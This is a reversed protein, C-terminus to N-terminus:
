AVMLLISTRKASNKTDDRTSAAIVTRAARATHPQGQARGLVLRDCSLDDSPRRRCRFNPATPDGAIGARHDGNEHGVRGPGRDVVRRGLRDKRRAAIVAPDAFMTSTSAAPTGTAATTSSATSAHHRGQSRRRHRQPKGDGANSLKVHAVSFNTAGIPRLQRRPRRRGSPPAPPRHHRRLQGALRDPRLVPLQQPVARLPRRPAHRPRQHRLRRGPRGHVRRRPDEQRRLRRVQRHHHPDRRLRRRQRPGQQGAPRPRLHPDTNAESAIVRVIVAKEATRQPGPGAPRRHVGQRPDRDPVDVGRPPRLRHRRDPGPHVRPRRSRSPSTPTSSRAPSTAATPPSSRCSTARTSCSWATATPRRRRRRGPDAAARRPPSRSPPTTRALATVLVWGPYALELAALRRGPLQRDLHQRPAAALRRQHRRRQAPQVPLRHGPQTSRLRYAGDPVLVLPRHRQEARQGVAAPHHGQRQQGAVM